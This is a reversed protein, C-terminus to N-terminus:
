SLLDGIWYEERERSGVDYSGLSLTLSEQKSNSDRLAQFEMKATAYELQLSEYSRTLDSHQAQLEALRAELDRV